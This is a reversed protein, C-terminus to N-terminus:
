LYCFILKPSHRIENMVSKVANNKKEIYMCIDNINM